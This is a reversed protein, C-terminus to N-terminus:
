HGKRRGESGPPSGSGTRRCAIWSVVPTPVVKQLGSGDDNIRFLLSAGQEEGAFIVQSNTRFLARLADISTLRRPASRGDLTAVWVPSREAASAEVFVVRKGDPSIDFNEILFRRCVHRAV